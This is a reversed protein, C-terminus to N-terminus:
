YIEPCSLLIINKNEREIDDAAQAIGSISSFDLQNVFSKSSEILVDFSDLLYTCEPKIQTINAQIMKARGYIVQAVHSLKLFAARLGCDYMQKDAAFIAAFIWPEGAFPSSKSTFEIEKPTKEYFTISNANPQINIASVEERKFDSDMGMLNIEPNVVDLFIFKTEPYGEYPVDEVENPDRLVAVNLGPPFSKNIRDFLRDNKGAEYVLYYKINPNTIYLFNTIRFPMKWENSWAVADQGEILSPAFLIKDSFSTAKDDIWFNCDCAESCSFSLGGKPMALLQATGKSEIAGSFVAEINESLTISLKQESLSKQKAVVSFFFALIVAGAILIFIWHFQMEFGRKKM